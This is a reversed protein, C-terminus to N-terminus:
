GKELVSEALVPASAEVMPADTCEAEQGPAHEEKPEVTAMWDAIRDRDWKHLDNLHCAAIYVKIGKQGCELCQSFEHYSWPWAEAADGQGASKLAGAVACMEGNPGYPGSFWQPALASGLRIAESFRM